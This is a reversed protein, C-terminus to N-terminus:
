APQTEFDPVAAPEDYAARAPLFVAVGVAALLTVAAAVFGVIHLGAVFADKSAALIQPAYQKAAPSENAVGVAQGVNDGIQRLVDAPVVSRLSTAVGSTFHGAMLSGFVAVGIAGGMQRTTDNM